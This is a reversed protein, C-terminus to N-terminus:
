LRPRRNSLPFHTEVHIKRRHIIFLIGFLIGYYLGCAWWAPPVVPRVAYPWAAMHRILALTAGVMRHIVYVLCAPVTGPAVMGWTGVLLGAIMLVGSLPFVTWNALFGALSLRHFYYVLIPWIGIHVTLGM